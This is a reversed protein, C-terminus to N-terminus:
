RPVGKQKDAKNKEFTKRKKILDDLSVREGKPQLTRIYNRISERRPQEELWKLVEQMRDTEIFPLGIVEAKENLRRFLNWRITNMRDLEQDIFPLPVKRKETIVEAARSKELATGNDYKDVVKIFGQHYGVADLFEKLTNYYENIADEEQQAMKDIEEETIVVRNTQNPLADEGYAEVFEAISLQEENEGQLVIVSRGDEALISKM